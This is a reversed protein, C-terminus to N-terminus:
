SRLSLGSALKALASLIIESNKGTLASRYVHKYVRLKLGENM